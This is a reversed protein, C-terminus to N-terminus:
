NKTFVKFYLGDHFQNPILQTYQYKFGNPIKLDQSAADKNKSLFKMVVNENEEFFYFKKILPHYEIKMNKTINFIVNDFLYKNKRKVTITELIQISIGKEIIKKLDNDLEYDLFYKIKISDFKQEQVIIDAYSINLFVIWALSIKLLSKLIYVMM